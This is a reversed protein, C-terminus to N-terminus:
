AGLYHLLIPILITSILPSAIRVAQRTLGMEVSQSEIYDRLELLKKLSDAQEFLVASQDLRAAVVLSRIAEIKAELQDVERRLYTEKISRLIINVSSVHIYVVLSLFVGLIILKPYLVVVGGGVAIHIASVPAQIACVAQIASPQCPLTVAGVLAPLLTSLALYALSAALMTRSIAIGLVAFLLTVGFDAWQFVWWLGDLEQRMPASWPISFGIILPILLLLVAALAAFSLAGIAELLEMERFHRLPSLRMPLRSVGRMIYTSTNFAFHIGIGIYFAVVAWFLLDSLSTLLAQWSTTLGLRGLSAVGWVALGIIGGKLRDGDIPLFTSQISALALRRCLLSAILYGCLFCIIAALFSDFTSFGAQGLQFAFWCCCLIVASPIGALVDIQTVQPPKGPTQVGVFRALTFNKWFTTFDAKRVDLLEQFGSHSHMLAVYRDFEVFLVALILIGLAYLTIRLPSLFQGAFGGAAWGILHPVSGAFALGLALLFAGPWPSSLLKTMRALLATTATHGYYSRIVGTGDTGFLHPWFEAVGQEATYDAYVDFLAECEPCKAVRYWVEIGSGRPVRLIGIQEWQVISSFFDSGIRTWKGDDFRGIDRTYPMCALTRIPRDGMAADLPVPFHADCYPCELMADTM